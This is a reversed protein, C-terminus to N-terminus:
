AFGEREAYAIEKDAMADPISIKDPTPCHLGGDAAFAL